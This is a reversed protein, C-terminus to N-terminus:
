SDQHWCEKSKALYTSEANQEKIVGHKFFSSEEDRPQKRRRGASLTIRRKHFRRNLNFSSDAAAVCKM